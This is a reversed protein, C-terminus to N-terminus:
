LAEPTPQPHAIIAAVATSGSAGGLGLDIMAQDHHHVILFTNYAEIARWFPGILGEAMWKLGVTQVAPDVFETIRAVTKKTRM